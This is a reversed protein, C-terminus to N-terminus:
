PVASRAGVLKGNYYINFRNVNPALPWPTNFPYYKGNAGESVTGSLILSAQRAISPGGAPYDQPYDQPQDGTNCGGFYLKANSTLKGALLTNLDGVEEDNSNMLLLNAGDPTVMVYGNAFSEDGMFYGNEPGLFTQITSSGHGQFRIV